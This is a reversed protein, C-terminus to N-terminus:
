GTDRGPTKRWMMPTTEAIPRFGMPELIRQSAPFADVFAYKVGAARLLELRRRVLTRYYGQKRYPELTGGCFLGAFENEFDDFDVRGVAVPIGDPTHAMFIAISKPDNLLRRRTWAGATDGFIKRCLQDFIDWDERTHIQRVTEMPRPAQPLPTEYVDFVMFAETQGRKFGKSELVQVLDPPPDHSYVKWEFSQDLADYHDTQRQIFADLDEQGPDAFLLFGTEDAEKGTTRVVGDNIEWEGRPHRRHRDFRELIAETSETSNM